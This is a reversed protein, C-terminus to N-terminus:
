CILQTGLNVTMLIFFKYHMYHLSYIKLAPLLNPVCSHNEITLNHYKINNFYDIYIYYTSVHYSDRFDDVTMAEMNIIFRRGICSLLCWFLRYLLRSMHLALFSSRSRPLNYLPFRLFGFM